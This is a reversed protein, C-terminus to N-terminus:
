RLFLVKGVDGRDLSKGKLLFVLCEARAFGILDSSGHWRLPEAILLGNPKASLTSPLYTDRAKAAKADAALVAFGEELQTQAAQQMQLIAIRVFLYFTVAASVPNGPLGFILTEGLKAFVTPKGPRLCVREFFIEAGLEHLAAKTLDYKGVSVGGTIILIQSGSAKSIQSKLKKLDDGTTPLVKVASGPQECLAKLMVSNSNRIQDPGPTKDIAIIESGTALIAVKPRRSVKVKAYGFAALSAINNATIVEGKSVVRDRRRIEFGKPVIYNGNQVSEHIAVSGNAETALEMKQVADAGKPVPAGTMIRIAQGQELKDHWGKGAASEGVIKLTAPTAATDAARVAYGDMQSRDFPPLDMDALINEALIRDVSDYISVAEEGLVPTQQEIIEIAESIPIM